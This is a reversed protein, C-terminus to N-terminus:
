LMKHTMELVASQIWQKEGGGSAQDSIGTASVQGDAILERQSEQEWLAARGDTGLEPALPVKRSCVGCAEARRVEKGHSGCM